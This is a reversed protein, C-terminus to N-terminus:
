AGKAKPARLHSDLGALRDRGRKQIPVLVRYGVIQLLLGSALAACSVLVRQWGVNDLYLVHRALVPSRALDNFYALVQKGSGVPSRRPMARCNRSPVAAIPDQQSWNGDVTELVSLQGANARRNQVHRVFRM